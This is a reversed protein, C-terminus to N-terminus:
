RSHTFAFIFRLFSPSSPLAVGVPHDPRVCGAAEALRLLVVSGARICCGVAASASVEAVVVPEPVEAIVVSELVEVAAASALAPVGM